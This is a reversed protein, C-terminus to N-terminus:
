LFLTTLTINSKGHLRALKYTIIARITGALTRQQFGQAIQQRTLSASDHKKQPYAFVKQFPTQTL